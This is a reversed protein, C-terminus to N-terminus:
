DFKQRLLIIGGSIVGWLATFGLFSLLMTLPVNPYKSEDPTTPETFNDVYILQLSSVLKVKELESIASQLKNEGMKLNLNIKEFLNSYQALNGGTNKSVGATQSWLTKAQEEQAAIQRDINALQPSGEAVNRGMAERRSKLEAVQTEINTVVTMISDATLSVDYVGTKNQTEQLEKRLENLEKAAANVDREASIQLDRWMGANLTNIKEEALKLVLQLLDHAEKPSFAVVELDVIGSKPNVVTSHMRKWYKIIREQTASDSLRSLYDIDTRGFLRNLDSRQRLDQVIAPSSLYNLLVATDQVIKTQPEVTDSSYRNRSLMPASSRVIFSVESSFRPSAVFGYYVVSCVLPVLFTFIFVYFLVASFVRDRKRPAFGALRYLNRRSRNEFTLARAYSSLAAAMRQSRVAVSQAGNKKILANEDTV